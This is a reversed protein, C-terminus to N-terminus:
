HHASKHALENAYATRAKGNPQVNNGICWAKFTVADLYAKMVRAGSKGAADFAKEARRLWDDYDKFQWLDLCIARMGDWDERRYWVIGSIEIKM